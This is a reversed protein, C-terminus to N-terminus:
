INTDVDFDANQGLGDLFDKQLIRLESQNYLSVSVFNLCFPAFNLTHRFNHYNATIALGAQITDYMLFFLERYRYRNTKGRNKLPQLALESIAEM